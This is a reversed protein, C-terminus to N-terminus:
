YSKTTRVGANPCVPLLTPFAVLTPAGAGHVFGTQFSIGIQTAGLGLSIGTSTLAGTTSLNSHGRRQGTRSLGTGTTSLLAGITSLGTKVAGTISLTTSGIQITSAGLTKSGTLITSGTISLTTQGGGGGTMTSSITSLTKM